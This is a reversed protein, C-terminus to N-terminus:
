EPAVSLGEDKLAFTPLRSSAFALQDARAIDSDLPGEHLVIRYRLDIQKGAPLTYGGRPEGGTFASQGFPNAAFLGYERVHWRSPSGFNSPHDHITIGVISAEKIDLQDISNTQLKDMAFVPGSYDVWDSRTGWVDGDVRGDASRATGGMAADIKMTGAVRLGLTGEKTDGFQVDGHNAFLRVGFDIVRRAGDRYFHMRRRDSLVTQGDPGIWDDTTAVIVGKSATDPMVTMSTQVIECDLGHGDAWFDIGNVDGHAFWFSRHHPHDDREGALSRSVVPYNRTMALGAPSRLPFLIPRGQGNGILTTWHRGRDLIAVSDSTLISARVATLSRPSEASVLSGFLVLCCASYLRIPTM